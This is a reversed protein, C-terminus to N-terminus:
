SSIGGSTMGDIGHLQLGSFADPRHRQHLSHGKPEAVVSSIILLRYAVFLMMAPQDETHSNKHDINRCCISKTPILSPFRSLM